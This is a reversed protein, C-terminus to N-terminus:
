ENRTDIEKLLKKREETVEEMLTILNPSQLRELQEALAEWLSMLVVRDKKMVEGIFSDVSETGESEEKVKVIEDNTLIEKSVLSELINMMKAKILYALHPRFYETIKLLDEHHYRQLVKPITQSFAPAKIKEIEKSLYCLSLSYVKSECRAKLGRMRRWQFVLLAPVAVYLLLLLWFVVSWGSVGPSFVYVTLGAHWDPKPMKSTMLCSFVNFEQKIFIFSSVRLFRNNDREETVSSEATVDVGNMDRWTVDPTTGWKDSTCELRTQQDETFRISISPQGGLVEVNLTIHVEENWLVSEVFCTYLGGDSVHVDQLRLSVNGNLLEEPFLETRGNYAQIQHEPRIHFDQYLLAPSYFADRFWRVEFGQASIAPSLSAPLTVDEGAHVLVASSPAVVQFRQTWAVHTMHLLLFVFCSWGKQAKM